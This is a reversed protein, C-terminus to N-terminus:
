KMPSETKVPLNLLRRLANIGPRVIGASGPAENQREGGQLLAEVMGRGDPDAVAQLPTRGGLFPVKTSVWGEFQKQMEAEIQRRIEPDRMLDDQDIEEEAGCLAKRQKAQKIM